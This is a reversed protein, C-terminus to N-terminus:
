VDKGNWGAEVTHSVKTLKVFKELQKDKTVLIAMGYIQSVRIKEGRRTCYAKTTLVGCIIIKGETTEFGDTFEFSCILHDLVSEYERLGSEWSSIAEKDNQKSQYYKRIVSVYESYDNDSSFALNLFLGLCLILIFIAKM